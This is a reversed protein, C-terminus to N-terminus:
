RACHSGPAAHARGLATGHPRALRHGAPPRRRLLGALPHPGQPPAAPGAALPSPCAPPRAPLVDAPPAARPSMVCALLCVRLSGALWGALGLAPWGAPRSPVGGLGRVGVRFTGREADWLRADADEGCTALVRGESSGGVCYVKGDHYSPPQVLRAAFDWVRVSADESVTVAFRGKRTVVAGTVAGSHGELLCLLDGSELSYAMTTGDGATGDPGPLFSLSLTHPPHVPTPLPRCVRLPRRAIPSRMIPHSSTVAPAAAGDAM